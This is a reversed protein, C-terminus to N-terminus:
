LQLESEDPVNPDTYTPVILPGNNLYTGFAAGAEIGDAIDGTLLEAPIHRAAIKGLPGAMLSAERKDPRRLTLGQRHAIVWAGLAALLGILGAIVQAAEGPDAPDARRNGTSSRTRRGFLGRRPTGPDDGGDGDPSPDPLLGPRTGPGPLSPGPPILPGPGQDPEQDQLPPDLRLHAPIAFGPIPSTLAPEVSM